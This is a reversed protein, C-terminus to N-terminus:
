NNALSSFLFMPIFEHETIILFEMVEKLEAVMALEEVQVKM